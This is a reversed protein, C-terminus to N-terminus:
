TLEADGLDAETLVSLLLCPLETAPLVVTLALLLVSSLDATVFLVRSVRVSVLLTLVISLLRLAVVLVLAASLGPYLLVSLVYLGVYLLGRILVRGDYLLLVVVFVFELDEDFRLGLLLELRESIFLTCLDEDLDTFVEDARLLDPLEM